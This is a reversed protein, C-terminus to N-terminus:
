SGTLRIAAETTLTPNLHMGLARLRERRQEDVEFSALRTRVDLTRPPVQDKEQQKLAHVLLPLYHSALDCAEVLRDVSYREQAEFENAHSRLLEQANKINDDSGIADAFYVIKGLHSFLNSRKTKANADRENAEAEAGALTLGGEEVKDALEPYRSRLVRLRGANREAAAAEDELRDREEEARQYATEFHTSGALVEQAAARAYKLIFRASRVQRLFSSSDEAKSAPDVNGRGRKPEPYIMAIAMARQANTMHRRHINASLVYATPDEGNLHSVDPSIGALQCAARRNRGDVLMLQGDVEAVVIPERLGNEKIDAALEEIEDPSMMPFVAAAQHVPLNFLDFKPKTMVQELQRANFAQATRFHILARM